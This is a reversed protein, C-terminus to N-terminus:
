FDRVRQKDFIDRDIMVPVSDAIKDILDMAENAKYHSKSWISLESLKDLPKKIQPILAIDMSELFFQSAKIFNISESKYQTFDPLCCLTQKMLELESNFTRLKSQFVEQDLNESIEDLLKKMNISAQNLIIKQFQEFPKILKSRTREKKMSESTIITVANQFLLPLQSIHREYSNELSGLRNSIETVVEKIVEDKNEALALILDNTLRTLKFIEDRYSARTKMEILREVITQQDDTFSAIKSIELGLNVEEQLANISEEFSKYDSNEMSYVTLTRYYNALNYRTMLEMNPISYLELRKIHNFKEIRYAAPYFTLSSKLYDLGRIFLTYNVLPDYFWWKESLKGLFNILYNNIFEGLSEDIEARLLKAKRNDEELEPYIQLLILRRLKLSNDMFNRIMSKVEDLKDIPLEDIFFNGTIEDLELYVENTFGIFQPQSAIEFVGENRIIDLTLMLFSLETRFTFLSEINETIQTEREKDTLIAEKDKSYEDIYRATQTRAITLLETLSPFLDNTFGKWLKSIEMKDLQKYDNYLETRRKFVNMFLEILSNKLEPLVM